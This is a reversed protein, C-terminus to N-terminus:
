ARQQPKRTRRSGRTSRKAVVFSQVACGPCAAAGKYWKRFGAEFFAKLDAFPPAQEPLALEDMFCMARDGVLAAASFHDNADNAAASSTASNTRHVSLTFTIFGTCQHVTASLLVTVMVQLCHM